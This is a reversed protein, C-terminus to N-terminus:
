NQRARDRYDNELTRSRFSSRLSPHSFPYSPIAMETM